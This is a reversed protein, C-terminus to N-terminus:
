EHFDEEFIRFDVIFEKYKKQHIRLRGQLQREVINRVLKLGLTETNDIDLDEKLRVGDDRINMVIRKDANQKLSIEINGGIKKNFAHKFANSILENVVMACPVAQTLPIHIDDIDTHISVKKGRGYVASLYRALSKVHQRMEIRDFRESRYLQSHIFALTQIKSRADTILDRAKVDKIRLGTLDLLSSIVQLNNKVRHHIEQLLYEKEIISTKLKEEAKKRQTIDRLSTILMKPYGRKDRVVAANLEGIFPSGDKRFLHFETNRSIGQKLTKHFFLIAKAKEETPIFDMFNKGVMEKSDAYGFLAPAQDSVYTIDADLDTATVADPSTLLLSEYMEKSERLDEEAQKRITIDEGSSLVGIPVGENNSLVTNYWAIIKEDGNKTRVSNTYHELTGSQGNMIKLFVKKVNERCKEPLFTMFWDKGVIERETYGLIECGKKNILTVKGDGNLAVIIVGVIDIYKKAIEKEWRCEESEWCSENKFAPPAASARPSEPPKRPGQKDM